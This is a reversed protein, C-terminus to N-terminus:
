YTDVNAKSGEYRVEVLSDEAKDCKLKSMGM